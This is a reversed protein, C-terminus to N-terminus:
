FSDFRARGRRGGRDATRSPSVDTEPFLPDGAPAMGQPKPDPVPVDGPPSERFSPRASVEPAEPIIVKTEYVVRPPDPLRVHGLRLLQRAIMEDEIEIEQGLTAVGYSGCLQQRNCIVRMSLQPFDPGGRPLPPGM